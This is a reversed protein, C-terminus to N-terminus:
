EEQRYGEDNSKLNGNHCYLGKSQLVLIVTCVLNSKFIKWMCGTNELLLCRNFSWQVKKKNSFNSTKNKNFSTKFAKEQDWFSLVELMQCSAGM